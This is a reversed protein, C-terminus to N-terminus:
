FPLEAEINEKKVLSKNFIDNGEFYNSEISKNKLDLFTSNKLIIKTIIKKIGEKDEYKEIILRGEVGVRKGKSYKACLEAQKGWAEIPIFDTSISGDKNKYDRNVAISFKARVKDNFYKIDPDKTLRGVLIVNNM